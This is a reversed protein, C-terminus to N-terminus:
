CGAEVPHLAPMAASLRKLPKERRAPFGFGNFRNLGEATRM